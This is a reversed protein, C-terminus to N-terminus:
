VEVAKGSIIGYFDNSDIDSLKRRIAGAAHHKEDISEDAFLYKMFYVFSFLSLDCWEACGTDIQRGSDSETKM